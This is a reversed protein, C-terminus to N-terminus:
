VEHVYLQNFDADKCIRIVPGNAKALVNPQNFKNVKFVLHPPLM